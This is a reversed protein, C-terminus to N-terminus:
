ASDHCQVRRTADIISHMSKLQALLRIRTRMRNIAANRFSRDYDDPDPLIVLNLPQEVAVLDRNIKTASNWLALEYDYVPEYTEPTHFGVLRSQRAAVNFTIASFKTM